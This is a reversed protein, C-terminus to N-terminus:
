IQSEFDFVLLINKNTKENLIMLKPSHQTHSQCKKSLKNEQFVKNKFIIGLKQRGTQFETFTLASKRLYNGRFSNM